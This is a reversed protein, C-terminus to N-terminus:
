ANDIYFEFHELCKEFVGRFFTVFIIIDIECQVENSM